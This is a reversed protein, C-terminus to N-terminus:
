RVDRGARRHDLLERVIANLNDREAPDPELDTARQFAGIAEDLRGARALATGLNVLGAVSSPDAAVFATFADAAEQHRELRALAIGLNFRAAANSPRVQLYRQYAAVADPLRESALLSDAMGGLADPDDPKRALVEGFAAVAQEYRGQAMRTRGIQHYARLVNVDDPKMRIFSAYLEAAEEYRRDAQREFALAYHADASEPLAREYAAIAEDRRGAATLQVGLNHLARGHPWRDVVSQWIGVGSAYEGNRQITLALLAVCAAAAIAGGATRRRTEAAYQDLLRVAGLVALALLAALPLYMRREAGAETAIPVISSTPALLVFFATALFGVPCSWWWAAMSAAALLVVVLGPLWVDTLTLARPEGYDLVLGVPLVALRLYRVIMPAQNLLYTWPSVGSSLGASNSRPGGAILAALLLWTGALAAYYAPRRRVAEALGNSVFAADFLLVVLPATVMSEKSAMGAACAAVSMAYWRGPRASTMGRLGAYMTALYALAMLSETRQTVYDVTETLLPHVTWLVAIAAAIPTARSAAPGGARPLELVRRATAFLLMGCCAVIAANFAHYGWPSTGGVAFNLALTLNPIPRGALSSQVPGGAFAELLSRITGNTEVSGGDDFVFPNGLANAYAVTALVLIAAFPWWQAYPPAPTNADRRVPSAASPRRSRAPRTM